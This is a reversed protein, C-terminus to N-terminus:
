SAMNVFIDAGSFCRVQTIESFKNAVIYNEAPLFLGSSCNEAVGLGFRNIQSSKKM